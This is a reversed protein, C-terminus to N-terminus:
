DKVDSEVSLSIRRDDLRPKCDKFCIDVIDRLAAKSLRRFIILGDIRNLFEPAFSSSIIDMMARKTEPSILDETVNAGASQM